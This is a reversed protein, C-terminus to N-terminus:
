PDESPAYTWAQGDWTYRHATGSVLDEDSSPACSAVLEGEDVTAGTFGFVHADNWCGGRGPLRVIRPGAPAPDPESEGEGAPAIGWFAISDRSESSQETIIERQGDGTM